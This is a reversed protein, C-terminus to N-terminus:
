DWHRSGESVIEGPRSELRVTYTDEGSVEPLFDADLGRQELWACEAACGALYADRAGKSLEDALKQVADRAAEAAEDTDYKQYAVLVTDSGWWGGEEPGGYYSEHRYLSVYSAEAQVADACVTLFAARLDGGEGAM